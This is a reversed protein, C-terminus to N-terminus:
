ALRAEQRGDVQPGKDVAALADRPAGDVVGLVVVAHPARAGAAGPGTAPVRVLPARVHPRGAATAEVRDAARAGPVVALDVVHGDFAATAAGALPGGHADAPVQDLVEPGEHARIGEVRPAPVVAGGHHCGAVSEHLAPSPRHEGPVSRVAAWTPPMPGPRAALFPGVGAKPKVHLPALRGVVAQGEGVGLARAGAEVEAAASVVDAQADRAAGAVAGVAVAERAVRRAAIADM